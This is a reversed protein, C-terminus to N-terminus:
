YLPEISYLSIMKNCWMSFMFYIESWGLFIHIAKVGSECIEWLFDLSIKYFCCGFNNSYMCTICIIM